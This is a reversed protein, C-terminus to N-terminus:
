DKLILKNKIITQDLSLLQLNIRKNALLLRLLFFNLFKTHLKFIKKREIKSIKDFIDWLSYKKEGVINFLGKKKKKKIINLIFNSLTKIKLPQYLSGPYFMPYIPFNIKLYKYLILKSSSNEFYKKKYLLPLRLIICDYDLIKKEAYRKSKSYDDNLNKILVDTTSIHIFICKKKYTQIYKLLTYSLYHNIWFDKKTKPRLSTACNIILDNECVQKSIKLLNKQNFDKFNRLSVKSITNKKEYIKSLESGLFGSAGLISIKM